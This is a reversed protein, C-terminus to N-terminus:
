EAKLPRNMVKVVEESPKKGKYLVNYIAEVIPMEINNAKSEKYIIETTAIGEVTMKNTELFEKASDKQGILYGAKFNRSHKSWCTVVLDGIGNLGLYTEKKGGKFVGFKSIENIARTILAARTNDGYGLGSLTGSAIAIVNKLCDGYESGIEDNNTYVRFYSNSFAKQVVEACELDLSTATILTLSKVIVEEAHSPGILSVVEHRKSADIKERIVDSLRENTLRDLGKATSVIYVKKKLLNNLQELVSRYASSPVSVVVMEADVLAEEMTNFCRISEDLKVSKDFYTTNTHSENIEDVIRKERAYIKVEHENSALVNALACGWTGAGIVSVIM